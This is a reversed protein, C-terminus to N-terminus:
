NFFYEDQSRTDYLKNAFGDVYMNEGEKRRENICIKGNYSMKGNHSGFPTISLKRKVACRDAIYVFLKNYFINSYLYPTGDAYLM